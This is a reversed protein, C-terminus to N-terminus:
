ALIGGILRPLGALDNRVFISKAIPQLIATVSDAQQYGIEFAFAGNPQLWEPLKIAFTRYAELGDTGGFLAEPPDNLVEPALLSRETEAIYPPNSVVLDFRKENPNLSFKGARIKQLSLRNENRLSKAVVGANQIAAESIDIGVATTNKWHKLLSNVIVGSGVGIEFIREPPKQIPFLTEPLSILWAVWEETEPRPIFVHEPVPIKENLFEVTGVIRQFPIHKGRAKLYDRLLSLEQERLPQDHRLYVEIRKCGLVAAILFEAERRADAPLFNGTQELYQQSSLLVDRVTKM